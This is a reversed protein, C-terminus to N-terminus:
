IQPPLTFSSRQSQEVQNGLKQKLQECLEHFSAVISTNKANRTGAKPMVIMDVPPLTTQTLRFQERVVRKVRNRDVARPIKKKSFALGLRPFPKNQRVLMLLEKSHLRIPKAFVWEYEAATTLRSRKTFAQKSM